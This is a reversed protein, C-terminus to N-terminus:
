NGGRGRGRGRSRRSTQLGERPTYSGPRLNEVITMLSRDAAVLQRAYEFRAASTSPTNPRGAQIGDVQM